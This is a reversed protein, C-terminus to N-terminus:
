ANRANREDELAMKLLDNEVKLRDNERQIEAWKPSPEPKKELMEFSEFVMDVTSSGDDWILEVFPERMDGTGRGAVELNVDNMCLAPHEKDYAIACGNNNVHKVVFANVDCGAEIKRGYHVHELHGTDMVRFVYSTHATNLYFINDQVKIM